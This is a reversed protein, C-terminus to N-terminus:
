DSILIPCILLGNFKDPPPITNFSFKALLPMPTGVEIGLYIKDFLIHNYGVFIPVAHSAEGGLGPYEDPRAIDDPAPGTGTSPEWMSVTQNM